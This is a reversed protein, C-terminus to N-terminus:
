GVKDLAFNLGFFFGTLELLFWVSTDLSHVFSHAPLPGHPLIM